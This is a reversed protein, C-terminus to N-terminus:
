RVLFSSRRATCLRVSASTFRMTSSLLSSLIPSLTLWKTAVDKSCYFMEESVPCRPLALLAVNYSGFLRFHFFDFWHSNLYVPPPPTRKTNFTANLFMTSLLQRWCSEPQLTDERIVRLWNTSQSTNKTQKSAFALDLSAKNIQTAVASTLLSTNNTPTGAFFVTPEM